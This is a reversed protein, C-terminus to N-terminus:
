SDELVRVAGFTESLLRLWLRLQSPTLYHDGVRRCANRGLLNRQMPDTLTDRLIRAIEEPDNPDRVLRGHVGEEIQARIGAAHTSVVCCAKNMAETVTLGFGERLSNQVVITSCRQLANVIHANRQRSDMPLSLLVIHQQLDAPLALWKACLEELVAKGEPDDAIAAPDPGALVLRSLELRRREYPNPHPQHRKLAVFADLLPAWGKLRDWRSVQTIVPRSILGPDGVQVAPVFTGDSTLRKAPIPFPPELMPQTPVLLAASSLMNVLQHVSLEENKESLPDIAPPIVVARDQLFEPVYEPVSFVAWDYKSVAPRLFDWADITAPTTEDHGIHCRWIARVGLKEKILAGMGAPQPDHIILLDNPAVRKALEDAADKSVREYLARESATVQPRHGGHIANHLRKTLDFFAPEQPEIVVWEVDMGLDRMLGIQSPLMEAVGGGHETSNVIFITRHDRAMYEKAAERLRTIQPALHSDPEYDALGISQKLAVFRIISM